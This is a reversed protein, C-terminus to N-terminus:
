IFKRNQGLCFNYAKYISATDVYNLQLLGDGYNQQFGAGPSRELLM